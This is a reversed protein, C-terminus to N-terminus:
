KAAAHKYLWAKMERGVGSTFYMIVGYNSIPAAVIGLISKDLKWPVGTSPLERWADKVPDYARFHNDRHLVVWEGSVPDTAIVSQNIGLGVPAPKLTTVKGSADYAYLDSSDNGGGFIIAKRTASYAAINHYPGAKLDKAAAKWQAAGDPLVQASKGFFRFLEKRDPFYEIASGHGRDVDRLEPLSEWTDSAIDYAHVRWSDSPHHFFRGQAADIANNQYAHFWKLPEAWAPTPMAKWSNSTAQYVIFRPPPKLHDQGVFLVQQSHPDWVAKDSYSLINNGGLLERTYGETALEAWEGPKMAAALKGIATKPDTAVNSRPAPAAAVLVSAALNIAISVAISAIVFSKRLTGSFRISAATPM